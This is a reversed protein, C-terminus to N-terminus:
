DHQPAQDPEVDAAHSGHTTTAAHAGHASHVPVAPHAPDAAHSGHGTAGAATTSAAAQASSDEGAAHQGAGASGAGVPAPAVGAHQGAGASGAGAHQGASASGAGVPASAGGDAPAGVAAPAAHGDAGGNTAGAGDAAGAQGASGGAPSAGAGAGAGAAGAAGAGGGAAGGGAPAGGGFQAVRKPLAFVLAFAVVAFIASVLMAHASANTFGTAVNDLAAKKVAAIAAPTNSTPAPAKAITLTGFLVSGIVAIGVASGIRQIAAIVASGSGADRRDVTAVIFQANPAIFLGNGLGGIFLPALLMWSTLSTGDVNSLLLWLWILAIAVLATGIILVNRGLRSSLRNSQSSGIISGVAFPITVAGSALASHQLGSQWLLSITFFISTFAAFYVLALIVGGTFSPHKFLSPPVLASKGRKTYQVEWLAFLAMVVVGAAITIYTWLPWGENQGQILPVLIAVLGASVLLLGIWDLGAPPRPASKDRKPLFIAALILAAVGIPLNVYFVLRWGNTDGFAQILLGGIIPGLASSVGIVAGMIAFARGRAQPPFLLQIFATVAPVYIGGALGQIVRFIVLQEDSQAIGCAFSSVTFLAIGTFFVWKHGIRDGIRGAPILTLGFALAYGSIIWSLTSESADLSTRITPLAVNVITTDLLAIFMGILLVILARWATKPIAPAPAKTTATASSM